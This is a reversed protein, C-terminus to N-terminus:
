IHKWTRGNCLDYITHKSVNFEIALEKYSRGEGRLKRILIVKQEDLIASFSDVGKIQRGKAAKDKNNEELTGPVLHDPNICPPNDCTHMIIKGEPIKGIFLEYSYRHARYYTGGIYFLGYGFSDKSKNWIWCNDSKNFSSYFRNKAIEIKTTLAKKISDKDKLKFNKWCDRSCFSKYQKESLFSHIYKNRKFKERCEYCEIEIFKSM